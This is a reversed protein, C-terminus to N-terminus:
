KPTPTSKPEFKTFINLSEAMTPKRLEKSKEDLKDYSRNNSSPIMSHFVDFPLKPKTIVLSDTSLPKDMTPKSTLDNLKNCSQVKPSFDMTKFVDFIVDEDEVRMTVIGELVDILVGNTVFFPRGLIVYAEEENEEMDLVVFDVSFTFKDMNVLVDEILGRSYKLSKNAFQLLVTTLKKEGM